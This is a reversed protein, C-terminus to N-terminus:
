AMNVPVSPVLYLDGFSDVLELSLVDQELPIFYLPFEEVSVDGLVGADELIKNCVLTRRPVVFISFEHEISSSQRLKKIQEITTHLCTIIVNSRYLILPVSYIMSKYRLIPVLVSQTSHPAEVHGGKHDM